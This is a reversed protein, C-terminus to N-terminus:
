WPLRYIASQLRLATEASREILVHSFPAIFDFGSFACARFVDFQARNM